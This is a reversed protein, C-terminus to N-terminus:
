LIYNLTNILIGRYLVSKRNTCLVYREREEIIREVFLPFPFHELIGRHWNSCVLFMQHDDVIWRQHKLEQEHDRESQFCRGPLWGIKNRLVGGKVFGV